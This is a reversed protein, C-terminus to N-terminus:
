ILSGANNLVARLKVSLDMRSFPKQIFNLGEDLVGHHAIVNATYGSMFLCKLNPNISRLSKFLDRGNMEPMVIDTLLLHIDNSHERAMNIAEVPTSATLVNYGLRKLMIATMKLISLEDEVLLILENGYLFSEVNDTAHVIEGAATHRPLYIKFSTGEDPESYVNIFGDNQKVIGYVTALGLGTGKEVGKTTYFPEFLNKLIEQDMGCGNDSVTLQVFAGPYFGPHNDCYIKDLIVNCTEITLKGEDTIADKANVSLNALIQDLQSPDIKVPWLEEGPSWVLDINEGILRRLMKLISAVTENLDIVKPAVTQKRAFALLQRTVDASRKAAGKIEMLDAYLPLDPDTDELLMETRGIIVSLMNNFDHAVGGALRGVSEMKQAQTLQNQLKEQQREAEKLNTIDSISLLVKKTDDITLLVTSVLLDLEKNEGDILFDKRCEEEHHPEGTQFTSVVRSRIPCQTCVPNRGCGKGDFAHICNFAEGGLLGRIKEASKGAFSLGKHNCQEIQMKKNILALINPASNFIASLNESEISLRKQTEISKTIDLATFTVGKSLDSLDIPTSSLLVDIVTGDKRKWRTEVTGTGHDEIQTYKDRGVLEYAEETPYLMQTSRNVLEDADYGLMECLRKNVQMIIRDSVVGIGTPASRFVSQIKNENELLKKETENREFIYRGQQLNRFAILGVQDSLTNLFNVTRALAGEDVISLSKAAATLEKEDLGLESALQRIEDFDLQSKVMQGIGWNALHRGNIVIPVTGTIMDPIICGTRIHPKQNEKIYDFLERDFKECKGAGKETSRVLSCFSTFSSPQTIPKGDLGYIISPMQFTESFVDQLRQLMELDFVDILSFSSVDFDPTKLAALQSKLQDELKRRDTIDLVNGIVKVISGNDTVPKGATRIWIKEGTSKTFPFELDYSTGKEICQEFAKLIIPRDDPAYCQLSRDIHEKSGPVIEGPTFGHIHYLGDTWFIKQTEVDWEWGGVKTIEQTSNLLSINRKLENEKLKVEAIDWALDAFDQVLEVDNEGYDSPKNGVGLIAVINGGRMIPVVLERVVEAHGSPYGKKHSLAKYNNHVTPKKERVCDVWVGAQEINYHLGKGEAACFEKLTRTSWMQLSLTKQDAEIFHYFGIPSGTLDCVEDLTKQLLEEMSHSVAYESLRRRASLIKEAMVMKLYADKESVIGDQGFKSSKPENGM